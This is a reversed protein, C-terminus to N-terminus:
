IKIDVKQYLGTSLHIPNMQQQDIKLKEITPNVKIFSLTYGITELKKKLAPSLAKVIPELDKNENLVTLHIVKNQIQMDIVTQDISKLNLYFLIRCYDANIQGKETKRGNWQLTVDSQKGGFSIPLQMVMQVMSGIPDHSILQMGTLRHLLPELEKGNIGLEAIASMIMPKLSHLSDASDQNTNAWAKVEKEYELGLSTILSKLMHQVDSGSDLQEAAQNVLISSILQKLPEITKLSQFSPHDLYTRINELQQHLPKSDQVAILSDYIPKTFPLNKEIMTELATFTKTMDTGNDIWSAALKLQDKTVPSDKLSFFEILQLNQRTEPLQLEKLSFPSSQGAKEMVKLEIADKSNGGVQFWYSDSESVATKLQAILKMGGVRIIATHDPLLEEVRGYLLQGSKLSVVSARQLTDANVLSHLAHISRM